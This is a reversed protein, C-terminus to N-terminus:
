GEELKDMYELWEKSGNPVTVIKERGSKYYLRFTTKKHEQETRDATAAGILAGTRGAIMNGIVARGVANTISAKSVYESTVDLIKTKVLISDDLARQRKEKEPDVEGNQAAREKSRKDSISSRITIIAWILMIFICVLIVPDNLGM